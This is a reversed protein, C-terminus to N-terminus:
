LDQLVQVPPPPAELRLSTEYRSYVTTGSRWPAHWYLDHAVSQVGSKGGSQGDPNFQVLGINNLGVVESGEQIWPNRWFLLLLGDVLRQFLNKSKLKPRHSRDFAIRAPQRKIWDIHYRWDPLSQPQRVAIDWTLPQRHSRHLREVVPSHSAVHLPKVHRFGLFSRVKFLEPPHTWGAWDESSEALLSKIKTHVLRTKLESNKIASSTLQVLVHSKEDGNDQAAERSLAQIGRYPQRSWYHLCVTSGYHIDGSLIIIRDRQEFLTKLLRSFAYRNINWADGVDNHFTKGQKLNWHQILDIAELSVLNTPAVVLTAEIASEGQQTLADTQQMPQRLQRDFGTPSLLM